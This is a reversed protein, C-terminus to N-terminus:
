SSSDASYEVIQYVTRNRVIRDSGTWYSRRENRSKPDPLPRMTMAAAVSGKRRTSPTSIESRRSWSARRFTSAM